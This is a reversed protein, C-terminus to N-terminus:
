NLLIKFEFLYEEIILKDLKLFNLYCRKLIKDHNYKAIHQQCAHVSRQISLKQVHNKKKGLWM